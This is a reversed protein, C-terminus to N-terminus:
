RLELRAVNDRIHPTLNQLQGRASLTVVSANGVVVQLPPRGQLAVREGPIVTRSLLVQGQADKIQVWAEQRAQVEVPIFVSASAQGSAAQM